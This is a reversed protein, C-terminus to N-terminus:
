QQNHYRNIFITSSINLGNDRTLRQAHPVLLLPKMTLSKAGRIVRHSSTSPHSVRARSDVREELEEEEKEELEEEEKELQM